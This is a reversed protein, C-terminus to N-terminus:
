WPPQCPTSVRKKGQWMPRGWIGLPDATGSWETWRSWFPPHNRPQLWENIKLGGLKSGGLDDGGSPM